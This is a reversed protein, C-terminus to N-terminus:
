KKGFGSVIVDLNHSVRIGYIGDTSALKDAGILAAKDYTGVAQGNITCSATGDKIAWAITQTVSGDAVPKGVAAHPGRGFNVVKGGSFGRVLYTGNSYAMCYVLNPADTELDKGGIFVGYPHPHNTDPKTEKFTAGVTYDGRATNAPNWYFAAPGITLHLDKGSDAFKSDNISKGQKTAAADIKGHWGKVAIGGGAIKRDADQGQALVPAALAFALVVALTRM